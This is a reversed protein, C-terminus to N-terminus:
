PHAIAFDILYEMSKVYELPHSLSPGSGRYGKSRELFEYRRCELVLTAVNKGQLFKWLETRASM